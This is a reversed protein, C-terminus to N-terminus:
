EFTRSLSELAKRIHKDLVDRRETIDLDELDQSIVDPLRLLAKKAPTVMEYITQKVIDIPILDRRQEMISLIGEEMKRLQDVVKIWANMAKDADGIKDDEMYENIKDCMMLEMEQLRVLTSEIGMEDSAGSEKKPKIIKSMKRQMEADKKEESVIVNFYQDVLENLKTKHEKQAFSIRKDIVPIKVEMKNTFNTQKLATKFLKREEKNNGKCLRKFRYLDGKLGKIVFYKVLECCKIVEDNVDSYGVEKFYEILRILRITKDSYNNVTHIENFRMASIVFFAMHLLDYQEEIDKRRTYGVRTFWNYTMGAIQSLEHEMKERDVFRATGRTKISTLKIM